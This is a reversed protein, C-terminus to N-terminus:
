ARESAQELFARLAAKGGGILPEGHAFLLHDFDHELLRRLADLLGRKVREPDDGLLYDPVFGVGAGPFRVLGDAFALAGEGARIHLATEESCIAGVELASIGPALEDGFDFPAVAPAGEFEHLGSRQCLVPCGFAEVLRASHRYHHRNTLVIREPAGRERLWDLGGEPLMPDVLTAGGADLPDIYYSSVDLKIREHFATWHFVGPLVENV